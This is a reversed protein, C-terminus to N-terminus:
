LLVLNREFEEINLADKLEFKGIRIRILELIHAGSSLLAGIDRALSRIYTGKGCIVRIELVPLDFSVLSIDHVLVEKIRLEIKEGKRAFLYARKGNVFKASYQPPYQMQRGTLTRLASEITKRTIHATPYYHDIETELDFSPTTAGLFIKAHYEKQDAQYIEINRTEKGTCIILLGSALPDLTGAHGVKLKKINLQFKIINRVKRVLDFSTWYLPKNFLLVKGEVFEKNPQDATM